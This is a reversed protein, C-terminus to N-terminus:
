PLPEVTIAGQHEWAALVTGDALPLLSVFSGEKRLSVTKGAPGRVQLGEPNSWAAYLGKQGVALAVDKGAGLSIEAEGPRALFIQGDRRWASVLGRGDAALGGGDMPCANLPWTGNGIKKAEEFTKGDASSSIYMDRSGGLANRWMVSVRGKGDIVVSPHCCQCISGDPSEYILVNKSWTAGSDSSRAGYLKTGKGRLDLWAAFLNGQQDAGIAHLGERASGPTDNISAGATWSKGGDMSRWVHLDGDAPLGHAHPGEAVAKGSVATIVIAKPLVTVRPGRHRGLALATSEAVKVPKGFTQGNDRSSAFYISNGAGYTMAVIGNGAALQPQRYEVAPAGSQLHVAALFLIPLIM